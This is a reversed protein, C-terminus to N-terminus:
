MGSPHYHAGMVVIGLGSVIVSTHNLERSM